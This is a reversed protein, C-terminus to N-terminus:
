GRGAPRPRASVIPRLLGGAATLQTRLRHREASDTSLRALSPVLVVAGPHQRVAGLLLPWSTRCGTHGCAVALDVFTTGLRLGRQRAYGEFVGGWPLVGALEADSSWVYGFAVPEADAV